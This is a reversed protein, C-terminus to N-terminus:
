MSKIFEEPKMVQTPIKLKQYVLRAKDYCRGDITVFYQCHAGYFTHLADDILNAFREDQRYGKLDTTTFLDIIKDYSPNSSEKFTPKAQEWLDDWTLHKPSGIVNNQINQLLKQYQPFKLRFQNLFKRFNKYLIYDRKIRYSFDYLDECLALMNMEVKTRPYILNFIPDVKYIEKFKEDVSQMRLLNNKMQGYLKILPENEFNFLQSFSEAVHDSDEITSNFFEKPERYHWKAQKEGWYQVICLNNSLKEIISLHNEIYDPNKLYGRHLDNIHANSYPSIITGQHIASEIASYINKQSSDSESDIKEIRNFINWDLYAYIM